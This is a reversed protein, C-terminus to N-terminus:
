KGIEGGPSGDEVRYSSGWAARLIEGDEAGPAALGHVVQTPIQM